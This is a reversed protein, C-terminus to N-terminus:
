HPIICFGARRFHYGRFVSKKSVQEATALITAIVEVQVRRATWQGKEFHLSNRYTAYQQLVAYNNPDPLLLYVHRRSSNRAGAEVLTPLVTKRFFRASRGKYWYNTTTPLPEMLSAHIQHAPLASIDELGTKPDALVSLSLSGIMAVICTAILNDVVNQTLTLASSLNTPVSPYFIFLRAGVLILAVISIIISLVILSTRKSGQPDAIRLGALRVRDLVNDM